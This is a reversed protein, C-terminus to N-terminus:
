NGISVRAEWNRYYEDLIIALALVLSSPPPQFTYACVGTCACMHMLVYMYVCVVYVCTPGPQAPVASRRCPVPGDQHWRMSLVPRHKVSFSPAPPGWTEQRGGETGAGHGGLDPQQRSLGHVIHSTFITFTGAPSGSSMLSDSCNDIVSPDAESGLGWWFGLSGRPHVRERSRLFPKFCFVPRLLPLVRALWVHPVSHLPVGANEVPQGWPRGACGVPM